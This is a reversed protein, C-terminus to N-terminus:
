LEIQQLNYRHNGSAGLLLAFNLFRSWFETCTQHWCNTSPQTSVDTKLCIKQLSLAGTERLQRPCANNSSALPQFEKQIRSQAM